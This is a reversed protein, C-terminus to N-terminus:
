IHILSLEQLMALFAQEPESFVQRADDATVQASALPAAYTVFGKGCIEAILVATLLWAMIRVKKIM